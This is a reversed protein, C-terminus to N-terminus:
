NLKVNQSVSLTFNKEKDSRRHSLPTLSCGSSVNIQKRQQNVTIYIKISLLSLLSLISTVSSVSRSYSFGITVRSFSNTAALSRTLPYIKSTSSSHVIYGRFQSSTRSPSKISSLRVTFQFIICRLLYNFFALTCNCNNYNSQCIVYCKVTMEIM